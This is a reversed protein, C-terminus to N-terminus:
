KAFVKLYINGLFSMLKRIKVCMAVQSKSLGLDGAHKEFLRRHEDIYAAEKGGGMVQGTNSDYRIRFYNLPEHIIYIKGKNAITMFFDYDIIYVFSPDFGGSQQYASKRVLNALPAGLYNRRFVSYRSADKGEVVGSKPYRKYFGKKQGNKDVFQTDSQVLLVEPYKEMAEVEREILTEHILDDACLLKIYEGQCLEMCHNWNGSMGLNKENIFLKVRPDKVNKVVQVTGDESQDDVIILEINQYTQNLVSRMTEEIYDANNYTPICVSVLPQKM